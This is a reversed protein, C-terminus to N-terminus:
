KNIRDIRNGDKDIPHGFRDVIQGKKNFIVGENNIKYGDDLMEYGDKDIRHGGEDIRYDNPIRKIKLIKCYVRHIEIEYTKPYGVTSVIQIEGEFIENANLEEFEEVIDVNTKDKKAVIDDMPLYIFQILSYRHASKLKNVREQDVIRMKKIREQRAEYTESEPDEIEPFKEHIIGFDIDSGDTIGIIGQHQASHVKKFRYKSNTKIIRGSRLEKDLVVLQKKYERCSKVSDCSVGGEDKSMTGWATITNMVSVFSSIDGESQSFIPISILCLLIIIINKM